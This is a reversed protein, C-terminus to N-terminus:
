LLSTVLGSFRQVVPLPLCRWLPSLGALPIRGRLIAAHDLSAEHPFYGPRVAVIETFGKRHYYRLQPDRPLGHRRASAYREATLQSHTARARQFGPMPSGLYIDRWGQRLAHPWFFRVLAWAADADVSTLSIGFLTRTSARLPPEDEIRACDEWCCAREIAARSIPKMFLSALAEGTDGRFAGVCLMPHAQMRKLMTLADAAQRRTWQRSELAQLAPLDSSRLFRAVIPRRSATASTANRSAIAATM